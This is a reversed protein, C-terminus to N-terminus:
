REPSIHKPAWSGIQRWECNLRLIRGVGAVAGPSGGAERGTQTSIQLTCRTRSAAIQAPRASPREPMAKMRVAPLAM